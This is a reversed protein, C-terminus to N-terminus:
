KKMYKKRGSRHGSRPRWNCMLNDRLDKLNEEDEEWGWAMKKRNKLYFLKDEIDYVREKSM